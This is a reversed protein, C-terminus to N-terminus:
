KDATLNVQSQENLKSVRISRHLIALVLMVLSYSITDYIVNQTMSIVILYVMGMLTGFGFRWEDRYILRTARVAQDVLFIIYLVAVIFGFEYVVRVYDNHPPRALRTNGWPQEASGAGYGVFPSEAASLFLRSSQELRESFTDQSQGFQDVENLAAFRQVIVPSALAILLLGGGLVRGINLRRSYIVVGLSLAILAAIWSGRNKSLLIALVYLALLLKMGPRNKEMAFPTIIFACLCLFIGYANADIITGVPRIGSLIVDHGYDYSYGALSQLLGVILATVFCAILPRSMRSLDDPNTISASFGLYVIIPLVFKTMTDILHAPPNPSIAFWITNLLMAGVVLYFSLMPLVPPPRRRTVVYGTAVVAWTIAFAIVFFPLGALGPIQLFAAVAFTSRFWLLYLVAGAPRRFFAFSSLCFLVLLPLFIVSYNQIM